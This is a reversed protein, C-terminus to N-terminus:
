AARHVTVLGKDGDVTVEDGDKIAQTALGTGVVCPVRYERSVVSAHTLTGGGDCVCAAIKTFAPTWTPTTGVCVLVDGQQLRHLEDPSRLVRATGRAVGSSAPVGSLQKADDAGSKMRALFEDTIGLIEIVVPESFTGARTSLM